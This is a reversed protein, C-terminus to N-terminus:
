FEKIRIWSPFFRIRSRPHFFKPDPILFLCGPDAVSHVRIHFVALFLPAVYGFDRKGRPPSVITGETRGEFIKVEEGEGQSFVCM